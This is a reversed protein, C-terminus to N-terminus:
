ATIDTQLEDVIKKRFIANTTNTEGLKTMNVVPLLGANTDDYLEPIFKETPCASHAVVEYHTVRYRCTQAPSTICPLM